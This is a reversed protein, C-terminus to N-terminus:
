DTDHNRDRVQRDLGYKRARYRFSRFNIGLLQAARTQVGDAKELADKLLAQEIDAIVQELNLGEPPVEWKQPPPASAAHFISPPLTELHVEDTTALAVARAMVNELERVNGPWAHALLAEM